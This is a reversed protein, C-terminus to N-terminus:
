RRILSAVSNLFLPLSFYTCDKHLDINEIDDIVETSLGISESFQKDIGPILSGGGYLFIHDIKRNTERSTYFKFMQELSSIWKKALELSRADPIHKEDFNHAVPQIGGDISRTFKLIGNEIIHLKISSYGIDIYAYTRSEIERMKGNIKMPRDFMKSIGNSAIDLVVPDKGMEQVLSHYYHGEKKPLAAVILRYKEIEGVKILDVVKFDILYQHPDIPLFEQLEYSVMGKMKDEEVKPLVMERSIVSRDGLTVIVKETKIKKQRLKENLEKILEFKDFEPSFQKDMETQLVPDLAKLKPTEIHFTDRIQISESVLGNKKKKGHSTGVLVKTWGTGVELVIREKDGNSFM